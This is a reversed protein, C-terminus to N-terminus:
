ERWVKVQYFQEPDNPAMPIEILLVGGNGMLVASAHSWSPSALDTSSLAQYFKGSGSQPVTLTFKRGGNGDGAVVPAAMSSDAAALPASPVSSVQSSLGSEVGSDFVALVVYHYRTGASLGTDSFSTTTLTGGIETSPGGPTTSRQLKYGSAGAVATWSLNIQTASVPGSTLANPVPPLILSIWNLNFLPTGLTSGNEVFRLFLSFSSNSPALTTELTEWTQAGGTVPVAISGLVAGSPSGQRVEIRSDPTGAARAV